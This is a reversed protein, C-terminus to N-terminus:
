CFRGYIDQVVDISNPKCILFLAFSIQHFNRSSNLTFGHFIYDATALARCLFPCLYLRTVTEVGHCDLHAPNLLYLTVCEGVKTCGGNKCSTGIKIEDNDDELVLSLFPTVSLQINSDLFYMRMQSANGWGQWRQSLRWSSGSAM